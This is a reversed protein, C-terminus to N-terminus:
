NGEKLCFVKVIYNDFDVFVFTSREEHALFTENTEKNCTFFM